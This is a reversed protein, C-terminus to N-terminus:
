LPDAEWVGGKLYARSFLLHTCTAFYVDIEEHSFLNQLALILCCPNQLLGFLGINPFSLGRLGEAGWGLGWELSPEALSGILSPPLLFTLKTM